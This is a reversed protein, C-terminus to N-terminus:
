IRMNACNPTDTLRSCKATHISTSARGKPKNSSANSITSTTGQSSSLLGKKSPLHYPKRARIAMLRRIPAISCNWAFSTTNASTSCSHSSSTTRRNADSVPSHNPSLPTSIQTPLAWSWPTIPMPRWEACDSCYSRNSVARIKTPKGFRKSTSIPPKAAWVRQKPRSAISSLM